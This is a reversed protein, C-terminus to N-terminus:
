FASLFSQYYIKYGTNSQGCWPFLITGWGFSLKFISVPSVGGGGVYVLFTYFPKYPPCPLSWFSTWCCRSLPAFPLQNSTQVVTLPQSLTLTRLTPAQRCWLLSYRPKRILKGLHLCFVWISDATLRWFNSDSEENRTHVFRGLCNICPEPLPNQCAPVHKM